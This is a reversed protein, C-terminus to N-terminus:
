SEATLAHQAERLSKGLPKEPLPHPAREDHIARAVTKANKLRPHDPPTSDEDHEAAYALHRFAKEKMAKSFESRSEIKDIIKGLAAMAACRVNVDMHECALFCIADM